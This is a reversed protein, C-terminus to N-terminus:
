INSRKRSLFTLHFLESLNSRSISPLVSNKLIVKTFGISVLTPSTSFLPSNPRLPTLFSEVYSHRSCHALLFLCSISIHHSHFFERLIFCSHCCLSITPCIPSLYSSSPFSAPYSLACPAFIITHLTNYALFSACIYQLFCMNSKIRLSPEFPESYICHHSQQPCTVSVSFLMHFKFSPSAGTILFFLPNGHLSIFLFDYHTSVQGSQILLFSQFKWIFPVSVRMLDNILM